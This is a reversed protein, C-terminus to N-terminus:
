RAFVHQRKVSSLLPFCLKWKAKVHQVTSPFLLKLLPVAALLNLFLMFDILYSIICVLSAAVHFFLIFPNYLCTHDM